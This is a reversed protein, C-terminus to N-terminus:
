IGAYMFSVIVSTEMNIVLLAILALTFFVPALIHLRHHRVLFSMEKLMFKTKKM